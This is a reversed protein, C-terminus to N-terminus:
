SKAEFKSAIVPFHSLLNNICGDYKKIPKKLAIQICQNNTTCKSLVIIHNQKVLLSYCTTLLLSAFFLATVLDVTDVYLGRLQM